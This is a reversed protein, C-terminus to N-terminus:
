RYPDRHNVRAILQQQRTLAAVTNVNVKGGARTLDAMSRSSGYKGQNSAFPEKIEPAYGGDVEKFRHKWSVLAFGCIRPPPRPGARGFVFVNGGPWLGRPPAVLM